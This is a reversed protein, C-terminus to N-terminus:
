HMGGPLDCVEVNASLKILRLGFFRGSEDRAGINTVCYSLNKELYYHLTSIPVGSERSLRRLWVGDPYRKLVDIIRQVKEMDM